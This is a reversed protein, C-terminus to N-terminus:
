LLVTKLWPHHERGGKKILVNELVTPLTRVRRDPGTTNHMIESRDADIVAVTLELL